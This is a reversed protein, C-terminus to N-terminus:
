LYIIFKNLKINNIKIYIFGLIGAGITLEPIGFGLRAAPLTTETGGPLTKGGVATETGVTGPTAVGETTTGPVALTTLGKPGGVATETKGVGYEVCDAVTGTGAALKTCVLTIAGTGGGVTETGPTTGGGVTETGATTGGGVTETGATTGGGVTETGPTTGGGVTETGPTTGGGTVVTETGGGPVKAV